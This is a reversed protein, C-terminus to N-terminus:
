YYVSTGSATARNVCIVTQDPRAAPRCVRLLFRMQKLVHNFNYRITVLNTNFVDDQTNALHNRTMRGEIKIHAIVPEVAAAFKDVVRVAAHLVDRDIVGFPQGLSANLRRNATDAVGIVISQSFGDVAEVLGLDNVPAPGPAGELWGLKGGEFLDAPEVVPPKDLRDAFDRRGFGLVAVIGHHPLGGHRSM